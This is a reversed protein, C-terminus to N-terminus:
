RARVSLFSMPMLYLFICGIVRFELESFFRTKLYCYARLRM